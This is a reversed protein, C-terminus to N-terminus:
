RTRRAIVTYAKHLIELDDRHEGLFRDIGQQPRNEPPRHLRWEYDDFSVPLPTRKWLLQERWSLRQFEEIQRLRRARLEELREVRWLPLRNITQESTKQGEPRSRLEALRPHHLILGRRPEGEIWDRGTDVLVAACPFELLTASGQGIDIFHARMTQASSGLCALLSAFAVLWKLRRM